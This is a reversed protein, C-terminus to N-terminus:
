KNASQIPDQTARHVLRLSTSINPMSFSGPDRPKARSSVIGSPIVGNSNSRDNLLTHRTMGNPPRRLERGPDALRRPLQNRLGTRSTPPAPRLRERQRVSAADLDDVLLLAAGELSPAFM